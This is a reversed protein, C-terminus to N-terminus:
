SADGESFVSMKPDLSAVGFTHRVKFEISDTDFDGDEPNVMGGGVRMANPSKRFLEPQERGRLFGIELAPRGANPNAFLYWGTSGFVTDILPLQYNVALTLGARMWNSAILKQNSTGGAETLEITIANLINRATIELAPPVVLTVADIRVPQGDSDRQNALVIFASQLGAISLAPNNSAAGFTTIVKNRNGVSYFAAQATPDAYLKTVASEETRRAAIGLDSPSDQFAGLDDNLWAEWSFAMRAGHKKPTIQYRGDTYAREPYPALENVPALLGRAGDKTMRSATRMDRLQTKKTYLSWSYPAEMYSGLIQRDLTDGMLYTFDSRTQTERLFQWEPVRGSKVGALFRNFELIRAPPIRQARVPKFGEVWQDSVQELFETAKM